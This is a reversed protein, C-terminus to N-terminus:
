EFLSLAANIFAKNSATNTLLELDESKIIKLSLLMNNVSNIYGDLTDSEPMELISNFNKHTSECAASVAPCYFQIDDAINKLNTQRCEYDLRECRKAYNVKYAEELSKAKQMLKSYTIVCVDNLFEDTSRYLEHVIAKVNLNMLMKIVSSNTNINYTYTTQEYKDTSKTLHIWMLDRDLMVDFAKISNILIARINYEIKALETKARPNINISKCAITIILLIRLKFLEEMVSNTGEPTFQRVIVPKNKIKIAVLINSVLTLLTNLDIERTIDMIIPECREAMSKIKEIVDDTNVNYFGGFMTLDIEEINILPSNNLLDNKFEVTPLFKSIDTVYVTPEKKLEKVRNHCTVFKDAFYTYRERLTNLLDLKNNSEVALKVLQNRHEKYIIRENPLYQFKNFDNLSEEILDLTYETIGAQISKVSLPYYIRSPLLEALENAASYGLKSNLFKNVYPTNLAILVNPNINKDPEEFVPIYSGDFLFNDVYRYKKFTEMIIGIILDAAAIQLKTDKSIEISTVTNDNM